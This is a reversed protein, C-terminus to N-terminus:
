DKYFRGFGDAIAQIQQKSPTSNGYAQMMNNLEIEAIEEFPEKGHGRANDIMLKILDDSFSVGELGQDSLYENAKDKVYDFYTNKGSNKFGEIDLDLEGNAYNFGLAETFFDRGKNNLLQNIISTYQSWSETDTAKPAGGQFFFDFYDEAAGMESSKVLETFKTATDNLFNFSRSEGGRKPNFNNIISDIDGLIEETTNFNEYLRVINANLDNITINGKEFATMARALGNASVIDMDLMAALTASSKSLEEINESTIKGNAEMLDFIQQGLNQYEGSALYFQVSEAAGPKKFADSTLKTALDITKEDTTYDGIHSLYQYTLIENDSIHSVLKELQSGDYEFEPNAMSEVVTTVLLDNFEKGYNQLVPQLKNLTRIQQKGLDSSIRKVTDWKVGLNYLGEMTEQTFQQMYSFYDDAKGSLAKKIPDYSVETYAESIPAGSFSDVGTERYRTVRETEVGLLKGFSELQKDTLQEIVDSIEKETGNYTGAIIEFMARMNDDEVEAALVPVQAVATQEVGRQFAIASVVQDRDYGKELEVGFLRKYENEIYAADTPMEKQIQEATAQLEELDFTEGMVTAILELDAPDLKLNSAAVYQKAGLTIYNKAQNRANEIEIQNRTQTNKYDDGYVFEKVWDPAKDVLKNLGTKISDPIYSELDIGTLEKLLMGPTGGFGLGGEGNKFINPIESYALSKYYDGISHINGKFYDGAVGFLGSQPLLNSLFGGNNSFARGYKNLELVQAQRYSAGAQAFTNYAQTKQATEAIKECAEALADSDLTLYLQGDQTFTSEIYQAYTSDKQLLSLIYENQDSIIDRRKQINGAENIQNQYDKIKNKAETMTAAAAKTRDSINQIADAYKQMKEYKAAATTEKIKKAYVALAVIGAAVAAGTVGLAAMNATSAGMGMKQGTKSLFKGLGKQAFKDSVQSYKDGVKRGLAKLLSTSGNQNEFGAIKRKLRNIEAEDNTNEDFNNELKDLKEKAELYEPNQTYDELGLTKIKFDNIKRRFVALLSESAEKGGKSMAEGAEKGGKKLDNAVDKGVDKSKSKGKFLGAFDGGLAGLLRDGISGGSFIKKLGAFSGVAVGFKLFGGVGNGFAGTLKNVINLLQTLADVAGKIISSNAIGMIFENWANKLRALKSQLSEQTKEFQKASAGEANYAATVLEQTRKYDQMMAIFRSQQRSGAAQTAIYRQQVSTLDDWKSALEMFIDDLGVEGLFYKNLDVGATRLAQSVKNVDITQGEEDTGRLQKENVLSKVESFRAVVTKLATGATEASERTTEIIQALFASTTEFDMNANHALSAVKTMATSIEDVNSASMAALQSYVDDIKQANMANLEMNFGRLANTMRDTAEAADLGAIRAMKLTETSLEAAQRDNLGQQYYLTAARYAEVTTVGLQNARATYEPLQKWMDSVTKDTVVATETMAVDLEKITNFASQIGRKVLILANNLGLFAKIRNKIGNIESLAENEKKYAEAEEDVAEKNKDATDKVEEHAKNFDELNETTEKLSDSKLNELLQKLDAINDFDVDSGTIEKITDKIEKLKETNIDGSELSKIMQDIKNYNEKEKEIEKSKNAIEKTGQQVAAKYQIENAKEKEILGNIKELEKERDRYEKLQTGDTTQAALQKRRATQEELLRNANNLNNRVIDRESTRIEINSEKNKGTSRRAKDLEAEKKTLLSELNAIKVRNDNIEKVLKKYETSEVGRKSNRLAEQKSELNKKQSELEARRTQSQTQKTINDKQKNNLEELEKNLQSIKDKSEDAQKGLDALQGPVTSQFDMLSKLQELAGNIKKFKELTDAPLLNEIGLSNLEKTEIGIKQILKEIKDYSSILSKMSTQDVSGSAALSQFNRIEDQLKDFITNFSKSMGKSLNLNGLQNQMQTLKSKIEELNIKGVFQLEYKQGSM